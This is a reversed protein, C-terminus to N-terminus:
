SSIPPREQRALGKFEVVFRAVEDLWELREGPTLSDFDGLGAFDAETTHALIEDIDRLLERERTM